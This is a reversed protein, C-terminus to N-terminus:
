AAEMERATFPDAEAFKAKTAKYVAIVTARDEKSMTELVAKNKAEWGAM